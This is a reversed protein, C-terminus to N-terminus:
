KGISLREVCGDKGVIIVVPRFIGIETQRAIRTFRGRMVGRGSVDAKGDASQVLVAAGDLSLIGLRAVVSRPTSASDPLIALAARRGALDASSLSDGASSIFLFDGVRAGAAYTKRLDELRAVKRLGDRRDALRASRPFRGALAEARRMLMANDAADDYVGQLGMLPLAALSSDAVRALLGDAEIRIAARVKAISDAVMKRGERSAMNAAKRASDVGVSLRRRLAEAAFAARTQGDSASLSEWERLTGCVKQAAGRSVVLPLVHASDLTLVYIDDPLTDSAFSYVGNADPALSFARATDAVVSRVAAVGGSTRNLDVIVLGEYHPGDGCAAFTMAFAAAAALRGVRMM